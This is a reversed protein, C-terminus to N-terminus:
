LGNTEITVGQSTFNTGASFFPFLVIELESNKNSSSFIAMATPSPDIYVSPLSTTINTAEAVTVGFDSSSVNCCM